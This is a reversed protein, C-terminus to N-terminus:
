CHRGRGLADGTVGHAGPDLYGPSGSLLGTRLGARGDLRRDVRREDIAEPDPRPDRGADHRDTGADGQAEQWSVSGPVHV